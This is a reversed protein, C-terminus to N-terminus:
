LVCVVVVVFVLSVLAVMLGFSYFASNKLWRVPASDTPKIPFFMSRFRQLLTEDDQGIDQEPSQYAM